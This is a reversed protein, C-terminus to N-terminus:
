CDNLIQRRLDEIEKKAQESIDESIITKGLFNKQYPIIGLSTMGFELILSRILDSARELDNCAGTTVNDKGFMIEEGLRGGLQSMVLSLIEKKTLNHIDNGEKKRGM